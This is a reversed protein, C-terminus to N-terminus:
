INFITFKKRSNIKAHFESESYKIGKLYWYKNGSINEVAPGDERHRKGNLYWQSDGNVYEVAPGDERHLKGNHYWFKTGNEVVVKYKIM